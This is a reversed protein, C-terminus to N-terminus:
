GRLFIRRLFVRAELRRLRGVEDRHRGPRGDIRNKRRAVRDAAILHRADRVPQPGVLVAAAQLDQHVVLEAARERGHRRADIGADRLQRDVPLGVAHQTRLVEERTLLEELAEARRRQRFDFPRRVVEGALLCNRDSVVAARDHHVGFGAGPCLCRLEPVELVLVHDGHRPELLEHEDRGLVVEAGAHGRVQEGVDRVRPFAGDRAIGRM